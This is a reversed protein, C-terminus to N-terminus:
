LYKVVPVLDLRPLCQTSKFPHVSVLSGLNIM